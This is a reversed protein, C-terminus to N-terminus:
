KVSFGLFDFILKVNIQVSLTRGDSLQLHQPPAIITSFLRIDLSSTIRKVIGILTSASKADIYTGYVKRRSLCRNPHFALPM